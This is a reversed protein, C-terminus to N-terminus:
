KEEELIDSWVEKLQPNKSAGCQCYIRCHMNCQGSLCAPNVFNDCTVFMKCANEPKNLGLAKSVMENASPLKPRLARHKRHARGTWFGIVLGFLAFSLIFILDEM